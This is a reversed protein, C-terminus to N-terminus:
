FVCIFNRSNWQAKDSLVYLLMASAVYGPVLVASWIASTYSVFRYYAIKFFPFKFADSPSYGGLDRCEYWDENYCTM